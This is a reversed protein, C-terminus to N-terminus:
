VGISMVILGSARAGPWARPLRLTFTAGAGPQGEVSLEGGLMAAYHRSIALGLGPGDHRRTRSNDAQQFPQFLREIDAPDLGVGTDSVAFVYTPPSTNTDVEVGLRITGNETFKCANGILNRLITHLKARDSVIAGIDEPCRLRLTNNRRQAQVAFNRTLLDIFPYLAITEPVASAKGAEIRSLDLVNDIIDFLNMGAQHIRGIDGVLQAPDVGESEDMLLESYGIIQSLPTRLEHSMTALFTEKTQLAALIQAEAQQRSSTEQRLQNVVADLEVKVRDLEIRTWGTLNPTSTGSQSPTPVRAMDQGRLLDSLIHALLIGITLLALGTTWAEHISRLATGAAAAAAPAAGVAFALQRPLVLAAAVQLLIALLWPVAGDGVGAVPVLFGAGLLLSGLTPALAASVRRVFLAAAAATAAAIGCAGAMLDMTSAATLAGALAAAVTMWTAYPAMAVDARTTADVPADTSGPTSETRGRLRTADSTLM